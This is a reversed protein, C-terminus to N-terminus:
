NHRGPPNASDIGKQVLVGPIHEELHSPTFYYVKAAIPSVFIATCKGYSPCHMGEILTRFKNILDTVEEKSYNKLLENEIKEAECMLENFFEPYKKMKPTFPLILSIRPMAKYGSPILPNTCDRM